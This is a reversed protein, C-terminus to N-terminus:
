AKRAGPIVGPLSTVLQVNQTLMNDNEDFTFQGFVLKGALVQPLWYKDDQWMKDYPINDINFWEPAMEETEAPEGGWEDCLYAHVCMRWPQDNEKQVFDHEAIKWYHHPTVGIEEECERVLAQELTEEPEVKGGVGNYRDAGFGRKKMALLIENERKLFLLTCVKETMLLEKM